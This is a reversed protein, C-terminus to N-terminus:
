CRARGGIDSGGFSHAEAVARADGKPRHPSNLWMEMCVRCGALPIIKAQYDPHKKCQMKNKEM